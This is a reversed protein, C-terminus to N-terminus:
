HSVPLGFFFNDVGERTRVGSAYTLDCCARATRALREMDLESETGDEGPTRLFVAM